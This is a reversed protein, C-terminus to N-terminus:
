SFCSYSRVERKTQTFLFSKFLQKVVAVLENMYDLENYDNDDIEERAQSVLDEILSPTSFDGERQLWSGIENLSFGADAAVQLVMTSLRMTTICDEEFGISRLLKADKESDLSAIHELEECTFPFQSQSWALWDFTACDLHKYSPLIYGHDIPIMGFTQEDSREQLLINGAHRDTNFLRIDLIGIKHVEPISFKLTGMDEASCKSSVFAQMSGEKEVGNVKMSVLTTVPVGSFNNYAADLLYAARERLAGNGVRFGKNVPHETVGVIAQEQVYGRPNCPAMYEEDRPKFIGLAETSRNDPYVFYAGGCGDETLKLRIEGSTRVNEILDEFLCLSTNSTLSEDLSLRISDDIDDVDTLDVDYWSSMTSSSPSPSQLPSLVCQDFLEKPNL